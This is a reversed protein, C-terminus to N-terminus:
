GLKLHSLVDVVDMLMDRLGSNKHRQARFYFKVAHSFALKATDTDCADAYLSWYDFPTAGDELPKIV